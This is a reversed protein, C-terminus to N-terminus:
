VEPRVDATDVDTPLADATEVKPGRNKINKGKSIDPKSYPKVEITHREPQVETGYGKRIMSVATIDEVEVIGGEPHGDWLRSLLIRKM